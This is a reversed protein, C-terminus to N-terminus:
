ARQEIAKGAYDLYAASMERATHRCLHEAAPLRLSERVDSDDLLHRLKRVLDSVDGRTFTIGALGVAEPLGGGDAVLPVCGCAMGELAVIGFPERWTSPVVLIEHNRLEAAVQGPGVMGTFRVRINRLQEAQLELAKREPGDGIITASFGGVRDLQIFADLLLKVGKEAVLRGVFAVKNMREPPGNFFVSDDYCNQVVVGSESAIEDKLFQSCFINYRSRRLILRKCHEKMRSLFKGEVSYDSQHVLVLPKRTLFVPWITKLSVNMMVVVDSSRWLELLSGPGVHHHVPFPLDVSQSETSLAVDTSVCVQHGMAIWERCLVDALTEIGGVSPSFRTQILLKM